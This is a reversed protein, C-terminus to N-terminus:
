LKFQIKMSNGLIKRVKMNNEVLYQNSCMLYVLYARILEFTTKSKFAAIPNNFSTDLEDKRGPSGPQPANQRKTSATSSATIRKGPLSATATASLANSSSSVFRNNSIENILNFNLKKKNFNASVCNLKISNNRIFFRLAM